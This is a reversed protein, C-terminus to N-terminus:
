RPEWSGNGGESFSVTGDAAYRYWGFKADTGSEPSVTVVLNGEWSPDYELHFCTGDERVANVVTTGSLSGVKVGVLDMWGALDGKVYEAASGTVKLTGDGSLGVILGTDMSIYNLNGWSLIEEAFAGCAKVTGDAQIGAVTLESESESSGAESLMQKAADIVVMGDWGFCELGVYEKSNGGNNDMYVRGQSDLAFFDSKEVGLRVPEGEIATGPEETLDYFIHTAEYYHATKGEADFYTDPSAARMSADVSATDRVTLRYIKNGSICMASQNTNTTSYVIDKVDSLIKTQHFYLDGNETVAFLGAESSDDAIMKLDPLAAYDRAFNDKSKGQTVVSGDPLILYGGTTLRDAADMASQVGEAITLATGSGSKEDAAGKEKKDAAKMSEVATDGANKSAAVNEESSKTEGGGCATVSAALALVAIWTIMKRM